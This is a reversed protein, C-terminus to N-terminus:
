FAEYGISAMPQIAPSGGAFHVTLDAGLMLGKRRIGNDGRTLVPYGGVRLHLQGEGVVYGGGGIGGNLGGGGGVGVFIRDIFTFDVMVISGAYFNGVFSGDDLSVGGISFYPQAYVGVLNNVQVGLRADVGGMGGSFSSVFLGGGGVSVGGRFRAGDSAEQAPPLDPRAGGATAPAPVAILVDAGVGDAEIYATVEQRQKGTAIMVVSHTGKDVPVAVGWEAPGVAAGDREISLGPLARVAEPVVITLKALRPALREAHDHAEKRRAGQSPQTAVGEAKTYVAWATALRGAGEYCQGLQIRAGIGDPVLRVVDELKPCATAYDKTKMAAVAQDFLVKAAAIDKPDGSQGAAPQPFLLLAVVVLAPGIRHNM